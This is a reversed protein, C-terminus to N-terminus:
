SSSQDKIVQKVQDAIMESLEQETPAKQDSDRLTQEIKGLAETLIDLRTPIPEQEAM